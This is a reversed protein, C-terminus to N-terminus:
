VNRAFPFSTEDFRAHRTIFVRNTKPDLCKYGKYQTCYGVFICEISRAALKHASYPRLYPFVRCEFVKFNNYSPVSNFLVEFPSKHLLLRTPLRNIIHAASSFAHVWFTAPANAGFLMALGTETLHRHKREVRGNQQPTYPCSMQHHTGNDLLLQRVRSNLFEAGGDSQFVKLKCTFQTQTFKLFNVLVEFFGSKTKLPYFWTFRSYDDVFLAYYRYGDVFTVPAPGQHPYFLLLICCGCKNLSSIVDFAVHGLRKHWLEFSAKNPSAISSALAKFGTALIAKTASDSLLKKTINPVILVDSSDLTTSSPAMHATAGSNVYRGPTSENINCDAHFAQALNAVSYSSKQAYNSLDPCSSAYHGLRCLKCHPPRRGRGHSSNGKYNSRGSRGRGRSPQTSYQVAFAVPSSTSGHLSSIFLEHSEAQAVLDRFSPRPQVVRHAISFTEFDPGKKLQRLSDKLNQSRELSDHSYASELALWVARSSTLGLVDAMAEESLSSQQILLVKQDTKVWSLYESNQTEKGDVTVTKSPAPYSGDVFRMGKQQLLLPNIQNRWILYNSSTLKITLMHILTNMPLSSNDISSAM